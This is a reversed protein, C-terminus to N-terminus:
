SVFGHGANTRGAPRVPGAHHRGAGAQVAMSSLHHTPEVGAHAAVGDITVGGYGQEQLMELTAELIARDHRPDRPRGPGRSGDKANKGAPEKTAM